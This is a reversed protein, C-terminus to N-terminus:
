IDELKIEDGVFIELRLQCPCVINLGPGEWSSPQLNYSYGVSRIQSDKIKVTGYYSGFVGDAATGTIRKNEYYVDFSWGKSDMEKGFKYIFDFYDLIEKPDDYNLDTFYLTTYFPMDGYSNDSSTSTWFMRYDMAEDKELSITQWNLGSPLDPINWTDSVTPKSTTNIIQPKALPSLNNPKKSINKFFLVVLLAALAIVFVIILHVFGRNKQIM